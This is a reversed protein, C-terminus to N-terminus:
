EGEIIIVQTDTEFGWWITRHQIGKMLAEYRSVCWIDVRDVWRKNMVDRVEFWGIGSVYLSDGYDFTNLLDPSVAIIGAHVRTGDATIFPTSDCEYISSTYWTVTVAKEQHSHTVQVEYKLEKISEATISGFNLM